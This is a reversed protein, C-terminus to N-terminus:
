NKKVTILHKSELFTKFTEQFRQVPKAKPYHSGELFSQLLKEWGYVSIPEIDSEEIDLLNLIHSPITQKHYKLLGLLAFCEDLNVLLEHNKIEYNENLWYHLGLLYQLEKHEYLSEIFQNLNAQYRHFSHINQSDTKVM